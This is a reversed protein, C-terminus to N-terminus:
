SSAGETAMPEEEAEGTVLEIVQGEVGDEDWRAAGYEKRAKDLLDRIATATAHKLAERQAAKQIQAKTM